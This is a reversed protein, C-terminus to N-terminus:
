VPMLVRERCSARGIQGPETAPQLNGDASRDIYVVGSIATRPLEGFDYGTAAQGATINVGTMTDNGLTGPTAANGLRDLGDNFAALPASSAVEVITYGGGVAPFLDDFRYDGNVGTTTTRNVPGFADAGTLTITVGQIPAEGPERSRFLM